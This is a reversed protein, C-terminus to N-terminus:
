LGTRPVSRSVEGVVAHLRVWAARAEPTFECGLTTSLSWLLAEESERDCKGGPDYSFCRQGPTCLWPKLLRPEDAFEIAARWVALVKESEAELNFDTGPRLRPNLSFLKQFYALAAVRAKPELSSFTRRILEVQGTTLHM